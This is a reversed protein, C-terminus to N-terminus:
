GTTPSRGAPAGGGGGPPVAGDGTPAGAGDGTRAGPAAPALPGSVPPAAWGGTALAAPSPRPLRLGADVVAGLSTIGALLELGNRMTEIGGLALGLTALVGLSLSAAIAYAVTETRSAAPLFRRWALGPGFAVFAFTAVLRLPVPAGLGALALVVWGSAALGADVTIRAPGPRPRPRHADGAAPPAAPHATHGPDMPNAADVPGPHAAGPHAPAPRAPAPAPRAPGPHAPGPQPARAAGPVALPAAVAPAGVPPAGPAHQDLSRTSRARVGDGALTAGLDPWAGARISRFMEHPVPESM